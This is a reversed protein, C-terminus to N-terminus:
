RRSTSSSIRRKAGEGSGTRGKPRGRSGSGPRFTRRASGRPRRSAAGRRSPPCPEGLVVPFRQQDLDLPRLSGATLVEGARTVAIRGGSSGLEMRAIVPSVEISGSKEGRPGVVVLQADAPANAFFPDWEWRAVVRAGDPLFAIGVCVPLGAKPDTVVATALPTARPPQAAAPALLLAATGLLVAAVGVRRTM